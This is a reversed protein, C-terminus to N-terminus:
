GTMVRFTIFLVVGFVILALLIRLGPNSSEDPRAALTTAGIAESVGLYEGAYRAQRLYEEGVSAESDFTVPYNLQPDLLRLKQAQAVEAAAKLAASVLTTTDKLPVKLEFAIVKGNERMPLGVVDGGAFSWLWAGDPRTKAGREKLAAELPELPLEAGNEQPQLLFDYTASM